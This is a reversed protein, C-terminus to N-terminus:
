LGNDKLLITQNSKSVALEGENTGVKNVIDKGADSKSICRMILLYFFYEIQM